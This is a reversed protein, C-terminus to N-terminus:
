ASGGATSMSIITMIHDIQDFTSNTVTTASWTFTSTTATTVFTAVYVSEGTAGSGNAPVNNQNGNCIAAQSIPQSNPPNNGGGMITALNAGVVAMNGQMSVNNATAYYGKEVVTWMLVTGVPLSVTYTSSTSSDTIIVNNLMGTRYLSTSPNATISTPLLAAFTLQHAGATPNSGCGTRHFFGTPNPNRPKRLIIDYTVWLEYVASGSAYAGTNLLAINLNGLNQLNLPTTDNNVSVYLGNTPQDKCEVGFVFDKTPKTSMGDAANEVQFRTTWPTEAANYQTGLAIIGLQSVTSYDTVMSKGEFVLGSFKYEEYCEAISPLFTFLQYNGPNIAYTVISTTGSAGARIDGVYERHKIRVSGHEAAFSADSPAPSKMLSNHTPVSMEYDGHGIISAIKRGMMRGALRGYQAAAPHVTGAGAGAILGLADVIAKKTSNDKKQSKPPNQQTQKTKKPM